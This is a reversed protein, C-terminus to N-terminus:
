MLDQFEESKYIRRAEKALQRLLMVMKTTDFDSSYEYQEALEDCAKAVDTIYLGHFAEIVQEVAQPNDVPFEENEKLLNKINKSLQKNNM